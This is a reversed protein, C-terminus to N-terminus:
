ARESIKLSVPPKGAGAVGPLSAKGIATGTCCEEYSAAALAMTVQNTRSLGNTAPLCNNTANGTKPNGM